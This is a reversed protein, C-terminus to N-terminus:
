NPGASDDPVLPAGKLRNQMYLYRVAWDVDDIHLWVAKRDVVYLRIHRVDTCDPDEEPSRVLVDLTVISNNARNDFYRRRTQGQSKVKSPSDSEDQDVEVIPDYYESAMAVGSSSSAEGDCYNHVSALLGDLLVTRGFLGCSYRRQDTTAFLLWPESSALKVCTMNNKGSPDSM